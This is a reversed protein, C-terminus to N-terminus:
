SQEMNLHEESETAELAAGLAPGLARALLARSGTHVVARLVWSPIGGGLIYGVGAAALVMQYPKERVRQELASRLDTVWEQSAIQREAGPPTREQGGPEKGTEDALESFTQSM